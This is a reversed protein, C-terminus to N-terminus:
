VGTLHRAPTMLDALISDPPQTLDMVNGWKALVGDGGDSKAKKLREASKKSKLQHQDSRLVMNRKIKLKVTGPQLNGLIKYAGDLTTELLSQSNVELIHDGKRFM